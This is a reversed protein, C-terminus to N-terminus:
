IRGLLMAPVAARRLALLDPLGAAEQLMTALAAKHGQQAEQKKLIEGGRDAQSTTRARWWLPRLTPDIPNDPVTLTYSNSTRLWRWGCRRRRESWFVLGLRRAQRLARQVTSVGCQAREALTEHSPCILGGAGRYTRLTLLVDRYARTLTGARFERWVRDPWPDTSM